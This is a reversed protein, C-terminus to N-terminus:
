QNEKHKHRVKTMITGNTKQDVHNISASWLDKYLGFSVGTLWVDVLISVSFMSSLGLSNTLKDSWEILIISFISYPWKMALISFSNPVKRIGTLRCIYESRFSFMPLDWQVVINHDFVDLNWTYYINKLAGFLKIMERTNEM